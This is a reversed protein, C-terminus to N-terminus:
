AHDKYMEDIETTYHEMLQKKALKMSPTLFGDEISLVDSIVRYERVKEWHNLKKNIKAVYKETMAKLKKSNLAKLPTSNMKKALCGLFEHEIFLLASVYPKGDGIVLAYEFWGNSMLEQEIFVSSVFEGTSTKLLEKKRGTITIYGEDDISALDGTYLWGESDIVEATAEKNNHYGRMINPGRALLEGEPSIKVEVHPFVKGCTGIKNNKPTNSAIVPSSETLGYGQYVMAGINLYFRYLMDSLAAGGSIMMRMRSGFALRLKAYLMKDLFKDILTVRAYPNKTTARYFALSVIAKKIFNGEMAKTKMKFYVKELLRPVVTMVTPNVEKLLTGVNKVDDAFYVTLERSLYFHMVM